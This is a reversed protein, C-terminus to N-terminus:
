HAVELGVVAGGEVEGFAFNVGRGARADGVEEFAGVVRVVVPRPGPVVVAAGYGFGILLEEVDDLGVAGEVGDDAERVAAGQGASEDRMPRLLM